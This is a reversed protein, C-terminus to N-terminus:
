ACSLGHPPTELLSFCVDLPSASTRKASFPFENAFISGDREAAIGELEPFSREANTFVGEIDVQANGAGSSQPAVKPFPVEIPFYALQARPYMEEMEQSRVFHSPRRDNPRSHANMM